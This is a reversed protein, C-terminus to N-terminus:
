RREPLPNADFHMRLDSLSIAPSVLRHIRPLLSAIRVPTGATAHARQGAFVFVGTPLPRAAPQYQFAAFLLLAAISAVSLYSRATWPTVAVCEREAAIRHQLERGLAARHSPDSIERPRSQRVAHELKEVNM